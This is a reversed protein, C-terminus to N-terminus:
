IIVQGLNLSPDPDPDVDFSIIPDPDADSTSLGGASIQVRKGDRGDKKLPYKRSFVRGPGSLLSEM